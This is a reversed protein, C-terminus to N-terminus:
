AVAVLPLGSRSPRRYADHGFLAFRFAGHLHYHTSAPMVTAAGQTVGSDDTEDLWGGPIAPDLYDARLRALVHAPDAQPALPLKRMQGVWLAKFLETQPWLRRLAKGSTVTNPLLGSPLRLALVRALLGGLDIGCPTGTLTEFRDLLWVWEAMHGPEIAQGDQVPDLDPGFYEFLTLDPALFRNQLLHLCHRAMDLGESLGTVAYLELGAEFLHMHPNQRRPLRHEPTEAWGQATKLRAIADLVRQLDASDAGGIALQSSTALLVFALDYLDHTQDLRDGGPGLRAALRGSVPDFCQDMAFRYVRRAAEAHHQDIELAAQALVHAQRFQVRVRREMSVLPAGSASLGEWVGAGGPCVGAGSWLGLADRFLWSRIWRVDPEPLM